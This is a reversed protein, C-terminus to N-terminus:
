GPSVITFLWWSDCQYYYYIMVFHYHYHCYHYHRDINNSLSRLVLFLRDLAQWWCGRMSGMGMVNTADSSSTIRHGLTQVCSPSLTASLRRVGNAAITETLANADAVCIPNCRPRHHHKQPHFIWQLERHQGCGHLLYASKRGKGQQRPAPDVLM